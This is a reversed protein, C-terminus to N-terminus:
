CPLLLIYNLWRLFADGKTARLARDDVHIASNVTSHSRNHFLQAM